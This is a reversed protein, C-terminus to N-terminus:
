RLHALDRVDAHLASKDTGAMPLSVLLELRRRLSYLM